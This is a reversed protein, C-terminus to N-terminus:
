GVYSDRRHATADSRIERQLHRDVGARLVRFADEAAATLAQVHGGDVALNRQQPISCADPMVFARCGHGEHTRRTKTIFRGEFLRSTADAAHLSSRESGLRRSRRKAFAPAPRMSSRM